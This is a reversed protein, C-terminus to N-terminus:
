CAAKPASITIWYNLRKLDADTFKACYYPQGNELSYEIKTPESRGGQFTREVVGYRRLLAAQSTHEVLMEGTDNKIHVSIFNDAPFPSQGGCASLAASVLLGVAASRRVM